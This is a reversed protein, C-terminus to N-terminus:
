QYYMILLPAAAVLHMKASLGLKRRRRLHLGLCCVAAVVSVFAGGANPVVLLM